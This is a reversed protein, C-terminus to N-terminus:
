LDIYYPMYAQIGTHKKMEQYRRLWQMDVGLVRSIIAAEESDDKGQLMEMFVNAFGKKKPYEAVYYNDSLGAKAAAVAIADDLTGISDVLNLGVADCGMWVRGEAIAKISDQKMGRGMACRGTFTEYGQNIMRQFIAKESDTFRSYPSPFGAHEASKVGDFTIGIKDAIGKVCPMMGFIGISGTLTTHYAMITDGICSMYYGGSAAYDGMSIILPKKAKLQKEAYWLQESGFASGGPSNIRLVVAKVDDNDALENILKIVKKPDIDDGDGISGEAYLIAIENASGKSKSEVKKMKDMKVMVPKDKIMKEIIKEMDQRYVLSDVMGREVLVESKDYFLGEDAFAQLNEVKLKRDAAIDNIIKQWIVDAIRQMQLRNADSMHDLIYPEVASKFTGVKFIQMEFGLKDLANKYFMVDMSIGSLGVTGQPNVYVKDALTAIWYSSQTYNDAYAIVPKKSKKFETVAHRIEEVSAPSASLYGCDLFLAKCDDDEAATQLTKRIDSLSIEDVESTFPSPYLSSISPVDETDIYDVVSGELKLQYVSNDDLSSSDNSSSFSAILASIFILGVIFHVVGYLLLGVIVAGVTKWFSNMISINFIIQHM